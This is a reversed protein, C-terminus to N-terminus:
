AIAKSASTFVMERLAAFNPINYGDPDASSVIDEHGISDILNIDEPKVVKADVTDYFTWVRPRTYDDCNQDVVLALRHSTLLVVSGIPYVGLSEVFQNLVEADFQGESGRMKEFATNPEMRPRHPRDSTMSDYVDCIAAMRGFLSIGEGALGLPYGSGDVREHHEMCVKMVEEPIEGGIALFDYGLRTHTKVIEHEKETLTEGITAVDLPLHGMGVDMLLGAMGAQKIRATDLRMERGLAIMLASVALAHTYLSSNERKVRMLGNFAHPNRQISAFLEEIVPEVQSSKIAKGLRAQNFVGALIRESRAVIGIAHGVERATSTPTTSRPDFPRASVPSRPPPVLELRAREIPPTHSPAVFQRKRTPAEGGIDDGKEVDIVVADLESAHLDALQGADTLLFKTKWFPHKLWPGELKHIYMGLRVEAVDIRKLM